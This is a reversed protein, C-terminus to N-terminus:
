LWLFKMRHAYLGFRYMIYPQCCSQLCRAGFPSTTKTDSQGDRVPANTLLRLGLFRKNYPSSQHSHGPLLGPRYCFLKSTASVSSEVTLTRVFRLRWKATPQQTEPLNKKRYNFTIWNKLPPPDKLENSISWIKSKWSTMDNLIEKKLSFNIVLIRIQYGIIVINNLILFTAAFIKLYINNFLRLRNFLLFLYIMWLIVDFFLYIKKLVLYRLIVSFFSLPICIFLLLGASFFGWDSNDKWYWWELYGSAHIEIFIWTSILLLVNSILFTKSVSKLM